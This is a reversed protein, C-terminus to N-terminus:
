DQSQCMVVTMRRMTTSVSSRVITAAVSSIEKVALMVMMPEVMVLDMVTERVMIVHTRQPAVDEVMLTEALM